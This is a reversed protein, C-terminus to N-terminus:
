GFVRKIDEYTATIAYVNRYGMQQLTLAALSARGGGGCHTLIVAEPDPCQKPANMEILGRSINISDDLKSRAASDAERVDIIVANESEDYLSKASAVDLCNIQAQAEAIFEAATKIM